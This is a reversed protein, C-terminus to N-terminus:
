AEWTIERCETRHHGAIRDAEQKTECLIKGVEGNKYLNVWVSYTKKEELSNFYDQCDKLSHFLSPHKDSDHFKGDLSYSNDGAILYEDADDINEIEVDGDLTSWAKQGKKFPKM